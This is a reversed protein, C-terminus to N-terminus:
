TDPQLEQEKVLSRTGISHCDAMVITCSWARIERPVPLCIFKSKLPSKVFHASTLMKCGNKLSLSLREGSQVVCEVQKYASAGFILSSILSQV